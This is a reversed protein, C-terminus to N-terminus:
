LFPEDIAPTDCGRHFATHALMLLGHDDAPLHPCATQAHQAAARIKNGDQQRVQATPAGRDRAVEATLRKVLESVVDGSYLAGDGAGAVAPETAGLPHPTSPKSLPHRSAAGIETSTRELEESSNTRSAAGTETTNGTDNTSARELEEALEGDIDLYLLARAPARGARGKTPRREKTITITLGLADTVNLAAKVWDRSQRTVDALQQYTSNVILLPPEKAWRAMVLLLAIVRDPEVKAHKLRRRDPHSNVRECEAVLRPYNPNTDVRDGAVAPTFGWYADHRELRERLPVRTTRNDTDNPLGSADRKPSQERSM